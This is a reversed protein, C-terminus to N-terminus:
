HLFIEEQIWVDALLYLDITRESELEIDPM